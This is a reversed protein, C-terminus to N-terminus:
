PNEVELALYHDMVEIPDFYLCRKEWVPFGDEEEQHCVYSPFGVAKDDLLKSLSSTRVQYKLTEEGNAIAQRLAKVKSSPFYKKNSIWENVKDFQECTRCSDAEGGIVSLPRMTMRSIPDDMTKGSGSDKAVYQKNLASLSEPLQGFVISWDITSIRDQRLMSERQATSASAWQANRTNGRDAERERLQAAYQKASSCLAESLQYAQYFPMKKHIMVVGACASFCEPQQPQNIEGGRLPPSLQKMFFRACSIGISAPTIFCIDDGAAIVCRIPHYKSEATFGLSALKGEQQWTEVQRVTAELAKQFSSDVRKSFQQHERRCDWWDDGCAQAIESVKKGMSNGDLHVIALFNDKGALEDFKNPEKKQGFVSQKGEEAREGEFIIDPSYDVLNLREIGVDKCYFAAARLSKKAELEAMLQLLNDGPTKDMDCRMIHTFVMMSDYNCYAKRCLLRMAAQAEAHSSFWFVSHGGGAYFLHDETLNCELYLEETVYRIAASRKVNDALLKSGFIYAQKQGVEVIALYLSAKCSVAEKDAVLLRVSRQMPLDPNMVTVKLGEEEKKRKSPYGSLTLFIM